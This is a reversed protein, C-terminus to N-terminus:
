PLPVFNDEQNRVALIVQFVAVLNILKRVLTHPFQLIIGATEFISRRCLKKHVHANLHFRDAHQRIGPARTTPFFM